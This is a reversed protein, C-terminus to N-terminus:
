AVPKTVVECRRRPCVSMRCTNVGLDAERLGRKRDHGEIILVPSVPKRKSGTQVIVADASKDNQSVRLWEKILPGAKKRIADNKPLTHDEFSAPDFEERFATAELQAYHFALASLTTRTLRCRCTRLPCVPTLIPTLRIPVIGSLSSPFSQNQQMLSNM